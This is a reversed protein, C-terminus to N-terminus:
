CFASLIPLKRTDTRIVNATFFVTALAQPLAPLATDDHIYEIDVSKETHGGSHEGKSADRGVHKHIHGYSYASPLSTGSPRRAIRAPAQRREPLPASGASRPVPSLLADKRLGGIHQSFGVMRGPIQNYLPACAQLVSASAM